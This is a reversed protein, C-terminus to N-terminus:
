RCWHIQLFNIFALTSKGDEELVHCYFEGPSYIMCVVVDVTQNVALGVWTWALPNLKAEVDLPVTLIFSRKTFVFPRLFISQFFQIKM